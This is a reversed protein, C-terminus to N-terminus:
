DSRSRASITRLDHQRDFEGESHSREMLRLRHIEIDYAESAKIEEDGDKHICQLAPATAVAYSVNSGQSTNM